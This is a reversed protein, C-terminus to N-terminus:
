RSRGRFPGRPVKSAAQRAYGAGQKAYQQAAKKYREKEKPSLRDWRRYAAIAFPYLRKAARLGRRANGPTAM